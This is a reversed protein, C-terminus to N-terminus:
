RHHAVLRRPETQIEPSRLTKQSEVRQRGHKTQIADMSQKSPRRLFYNYRFLDVRHGPIRQNSHNMKVAHIQRIDYSDDINLRISWCYCHFSLPINVATITFWQGLKQIYM